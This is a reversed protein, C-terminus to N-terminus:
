LVYPLEAFIRLLTRFEQDIDRVIPPEPSRANQVQVQSTSNKPRDFHASREQDGCVGADRRHNIAAAMDVVAKRMPALTKQHSLHKCVAPPTEIFSRSIEECANTQQEAQCNNADAPPRSHLSRSIGIYLPRSDQRFM